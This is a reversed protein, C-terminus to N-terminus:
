GRIRRKWVRPIRRVGILLLPASPLTTEAGPGEQQRGCHRSPPGQVGHSHRELGSVARRKDRAQESGGGSAALLASILRSSQQNDGQPWAFLPCFPMASTQTVQELMSSLQEITADSPIVPERDEIAPLYGLYGAGWGLWSRLYARYSGNRM